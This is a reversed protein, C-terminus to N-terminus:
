CLVSPQPKFYRIIKARIGTEEMAERAKAHEFTGVPEVFSAAVSERGKEEYPNIGGEGTRGLDMMEVSEKGIETFGDGVSGRAKEELLNIGGEDTRGLALMEVRKAGNAILIDRCALLSNGSTTIDDLLLVNEGEVSMDESVRISGFHVYKSRDGGGALKQIKSHRVLFGVKDKRGNGALMRGLISMGSNKVLPDSSPVVCISFGYGLLPDIEEFFRRIARGKMEKLDLIMKEFEGVLPNKEQRDKTTWYKHYRRLAIIKGTGNVRKDKFVSGSGESVIFSGFEGEE